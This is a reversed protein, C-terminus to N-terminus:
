MNQMPIIKKAAGEDDSAKDAMFLINEFKRTDGVNRIVM